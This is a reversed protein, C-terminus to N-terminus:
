LSGNVTCSVLNSPVVAVIDLWDLAYGKHPLNAVQAGITLRRLPAPQCGAAPHWGAGCVSEHCSLDSEKRRKRRGTASDGIVGGGQQIFQALQRIYLHKRGLRCLEVSAREIYNEILNAIVGIVIKAILHRELMRAHHHNVFGIQM